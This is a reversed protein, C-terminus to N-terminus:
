FVVLCYKLLTAYRKQDSEEEKHLTKAKKGKALKKTKKPKASKQQKKPERYGFLIILLLHTYTPVLNCFNYM